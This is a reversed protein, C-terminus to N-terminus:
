ARSAPPRQGDEPRRDDIHQHVVDRDLQDPLPHGVRQVGKREDRHRHEDEDAIQHVLRADRLPDEPKGVREDAADRASERLDVDNALRIKEPILPAASASM